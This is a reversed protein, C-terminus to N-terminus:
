DDFSSHHDFTSFSDNSDFMSTHDHHFHDDHFLSSSTDHLHDDHFASLPNSSNMCGIGGSCTSSGCWMCAHSFTTDHDSFLSSTETSNSDSDDFLSSSSQSGETSSAMGIWVLFGVIAIVFILTTM